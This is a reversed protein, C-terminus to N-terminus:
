PVKTSSSKRDLKPQLIVLQVDFLEVRRLVQLIPTKLQQSRTHSITSKAYYKSVQLILTKLQQSRTHSVTLLFPSISPQSSNTHSIMQLTTVNPLFYTVINLDQKSKKSQSHMKIFHIKNFYYTQYFVSVKVLFHNYQIFNHKILCLSSHMKTINVQNKIPHSYNIFYFFYFFTEQIYITCIFISM